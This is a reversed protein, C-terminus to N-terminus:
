ENFSKLDSELVHCRARVQSVLEELIDLCAKREPATIGGWLDDANRKTECAADLVQRLAMNTARNEIFDRLLGIALSRGGDDKIKCM